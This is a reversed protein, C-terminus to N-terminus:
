DMRGAARELIRAVEGTRSRYGYSEIFTEDAGYPVEGTAGYAEIWDELVRAIGADDSVAVGANSRELFDQAEGRTPAYALVPRRAGLYQAMKSYAGVEGGPEWQLYLLAGAGKQRALAEAYPVQGFTEVLESVGAEKALQEVTDSFRGLYQFRFQSLDLGRTRVTGLARLFPRLDQNPHYLSGAYVVNLLPETVAEASAYLDEDFAHPVIEIRDELEPYARAIVDGSSQSVFMLRSCRHLAYSELLRDLRAASGTKSYYFLRTWADPIDAVWPVGTSASLRAAALAATYPPSKTYIVDISERRIAERAARMLFPYWDIMRDPMEMWNRYLGLLTARWGASGGAGGLQGEAKQTVELGLLRKLRFSMDPNATRIVTVGPPVEMGEGAPIASLTGARPTIVIPNWGYDPLYRSFALPRETGIGGIPPYYYSIILAKKM